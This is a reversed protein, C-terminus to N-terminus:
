SPTNSVIRATHGAEQERPAPAVFSGELLEDREHVLFEMADCTAAHAPLPRAMAQLRRRQDVLRVQTEDARLLHVPTWKRATEARKIRRM